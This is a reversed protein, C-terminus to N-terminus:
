LKLIADSIDSYRTGHQILKDCSDAGPRPGSNGEDGLRQLFAHDHRVGRRVAFGAVHEAVLECVNELVAQGAAHVAAGGCRRRREARLNGRAIRSRGAHRERRRRWRLVSRM